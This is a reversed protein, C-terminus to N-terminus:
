SKGVLHYMGRFLSHAQDTVTGWCRVCHRSMTFSWYCNAPNFHVELTWDIVILLEVLLRRCRLFCPFLLSGPQHLGCKARLSGPDLHESPLVDLLQGLLSVPMVGLTAQPLDATGALGTKPSDMSILNSCRQPCIRISLFACLWLSFLFM